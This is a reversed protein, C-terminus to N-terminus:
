KQKKDPAPIKELVEPVPPKEPATRRLVEDRVQPRFLRDTQPALRGAQEDEVYPGGPAPPRAPHRLRDIRGEAHVSFAELFAREIIEVALAGDEDVAIASKAAAERQRGQPLRAKAVDVMEM